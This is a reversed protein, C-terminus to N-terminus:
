GDGQCLKKSSSVLACAIEDDSYSCTHLDCQVSAEMLQQRSSSLDCQVAAAQQQQQQQQQGEQLVQVRKNAMQYDGLLTTYKDMMVALKAQATQADFHLQGCVMELEHHDVDSAKRVTFTRLRGLSSSISDTQDKSHKQNDRLTKLYQEHVWTELHLQRQLANLHVQAEATTQLNREQLLSSAHDLQAEVDTLRDRVHHIVKQLSTIDDDDVDPQAALDNTFYDATPTPAPAPPTGLFAGGKKADWADYAAAAFV